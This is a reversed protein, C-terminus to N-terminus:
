GESEIDKQIAAIVAQPNILQPYHGTADLQRIKCRPIHQQLFHIVELPVIVDELCYLITVPVPILKLQQRIDSYFTVMAFKRSIVPEARLFTQKLENMNSADDSSGLVLPALHDTWEFYNRDMMDLMAVIDADNFGGNYHPAENLYRPSPGIAIIKKFLQPQEIAALMAIAGSVSHGVFYSDKLGLGSCIAILDDAYAQLHNYHEANYAQLDSKGCGMYDFLVVKFEATFAPTVHQWIQQDCGFGHGFIITKNGEGIITINHKRILQRVATSEPNKGQFPPM